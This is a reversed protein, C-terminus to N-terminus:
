FKLIEDFMFEAFPHTSILARELVYLDVGKDEVSGEVYGLGFDIVCLNVSGSSTAEVLINSTTSDGHIASNNHLLGILRGMEKALATLAAKDEQHANIYDRCTPANLYEMVFSSSDMDVYYLTPTRIGLTKCRLLSRVEGKFRDKTLRSDLEPHRYTKSFREKLVAKQGLFTGVRLKAEAGQKLMTWDNFDEM